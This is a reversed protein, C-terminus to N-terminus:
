EEEKAFKTKVAEFNANVAPHNDYKDRGEIEHQPCVFHGKLPVGRTFMEKGRPLDSPPYDKPPSRKRLAAIMDFTEDWNRHRNTYEGSMWRIFDAYNFQFRLLAAAHLLARDMLLKDPKGPPATM